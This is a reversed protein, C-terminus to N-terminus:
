STFVLFKYLLLVTCTESGLPSRLWKKLVTLCVCSWVREGGVQKHGNEGRRAEFFLM